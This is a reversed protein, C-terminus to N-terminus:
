RGSGTSGPNGPHDALWDAWAKPDAGPDSGVLSALASRYAKVISVRHTVVAAVNVDLVVGSSIVDVQPDAIFSAQAVQVDFDRIYAQQQTIAIYGRVGPNGGGAAQPPIGASPGAEVLLEVASADGLNEFAEATRIRVLPHGHLLGPALYRVAEGTDGHVRALNMAQERVGGDLDVVASRYLFRDNGETNRRALSALAVLRQDASFARRARDKLAEDAEPERVLIEEIAASMGPRNARAKRLLGRVRSATPRARHHRPLIEPELGAMFDRLRGRKDEPTLRLAADLHDWLEPELGWDFALRALELRGFGTNAVRSALEALEARLEEEDRIRLVRDREVQVTGDRTLIELRDGKVKVSGVVVTGDTLRVEDASLPAAILFGLTLPLSRM